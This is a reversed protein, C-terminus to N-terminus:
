GGSGGGRRGPGTSHDKSPRRFSGQSEAQEAELRREVRRVLGSAEMLLRMFHLRAAQTEDRADRIDAKVSLADNLKVLHRKPVHGAATLTVNQARLYNWYLYVDRQFDQASSERITLSQAEVSSLPQTSEQAADLVERAILLETNYRTLNETTTPLWRSTASLLLGRELLPTLAEAFTPLGNAAQHDAATRRGNAYAGARVLGDRELESLLHRSFARGGAAQVRRFVAQPTPPLHAILARVCPPESMQRLLLSVLEAKREGSVPLDHARAIRLLADRSLNNLLSRLSDDM